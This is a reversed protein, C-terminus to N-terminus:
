KLEVAQGDVAAGNVPVTIVCQSGDDDVAQAVVPVSALMACFGLVAGGLLRVKEM